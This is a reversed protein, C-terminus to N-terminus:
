RMERVRENLILGDIEDVEESCGELGCTHGKDRWTMVSVHLKYECYGGGCSSDAGLVEGRGVDCM